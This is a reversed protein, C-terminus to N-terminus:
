KNDSLAKVYIKMVYNVFANVFMYQDIEANEIKIIEDESLNTRKSLEKISINKSERYMKLFKGIEKLISINNM